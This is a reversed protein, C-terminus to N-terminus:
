KGRFFFAWVLVCVIGPVGLIYMLIPVMVKGEIDKALHMLHKKEMFVRGGSFVTGKRKGTRDHLDESIGCANAQFLDQLETFLASSISLLTGVLGTLPDLQSTFFPISIFFV